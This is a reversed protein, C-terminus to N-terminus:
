RNRLWSEFDIVSESWLTRITNLSRGPNVLLKEVEKQGKKSTIKEWAEARTSRSYKLFVKRLADAMDVLANIKGTDNKQKSM